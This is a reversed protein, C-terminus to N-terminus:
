YRLIFQVFSIIAFLYSIRLQFNWGFLIFEVTCLVIKKTDEETLALIIETEAVKMMVVMAIMEIVIVAIMEKVIQLDLDEEIM